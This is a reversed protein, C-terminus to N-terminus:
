TDKDYVRFLEPRHSLLINFKDEELINVFKELGDIKTGNIKYTNNYFDPDDFGILTIKNENYFIDLSENRLVEVGIDILKEELDHSSNVGEKFDM